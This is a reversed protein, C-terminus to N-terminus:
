LHTRSPSYPCPVWNKTGSSIIAKSNECVKGKKGFKKITNFLFLNKKLPSPKFMFVYCAMDISPHIFSFVRQSDQSNIQVHRQIM